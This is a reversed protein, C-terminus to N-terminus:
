GDHASALGLRIADIHWAGDQRLLVINSGPFLEAVVGEARARFADLDGRRLADSQALVQLVAIREQQQKEVALALGRVLELTKRGAGIVADQYDLYGRVLTFAVLPVVSAVVLLMLRARLSLRGNRPPARTAQDPIVNEM